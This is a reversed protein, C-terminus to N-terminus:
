FDPYPAVGTTAEELIDRIQRESLEMEILRGNADIIRANVNPLPIDSNPKCLHQPNTGRPSIIVLRHERAAVLDGKKAIVRTDYSGDREYSTIYPIGSISVVPEGQTIAVQLSIRDSGLLTISSGDLAMSAMPLNAMLALSALNLGDNVFSANYFTLPEGPLADSAAPLQGAAIDTVPSIGEGSHTQM